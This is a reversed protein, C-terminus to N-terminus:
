GAPGAVEERGKRKAEEWRRRGAVAARERNAEATEARAEPNPGLALAALFRAVAQRTSCIGTPTRVAVLSVGGAGRVVLSFMSRYTRGSTGPRGPVLTALDALPVLGETMLAEIEVPDSTIVEQGGCGHQVTPM